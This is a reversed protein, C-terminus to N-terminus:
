VGLHSKMDRPVEVAYFGINDIFKEANGFLACIQMGKPARFNLGDTDRVNGSSFRREKNTTFAIGSIRERAGFKSHSVKAEVIYEDPKLRFCHESGGNGGHSYRKTGCVFTVNDIIVGTRVVIETIAPNGDNCYPKMDDFPKTSPAAGMLQSKEMKVEKLPSQQKLDM